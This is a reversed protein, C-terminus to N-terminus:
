KEEELSLLNAESKGEFEPNYDLNPLLMEGEFM